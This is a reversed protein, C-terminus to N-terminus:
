ATKNTAIEAVNQDCYFEGIESRLLNALIPLHNAKFAYEGQEYKLYTSPSRFGFASAMDNLTLGLEQRRNKIYDLNLVKV